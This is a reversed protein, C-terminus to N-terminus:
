RANKKTPERAQIRSCQVSRTVRLLKYGRSGGAGFRVSEVEEALTGTLDDEFGEQLHSVYMQMSQLALVGGTECNYM